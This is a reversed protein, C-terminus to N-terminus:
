RYIREWKTLKGNADFTLHLYESRNANPVGLGGPEEAAGTRVGTEGVNPPAATGLRTLWEATTGGDPLGSTHSPPGLDAQAQTYTYNGIRSNWDAASKDTECGTLVWGLMLSAVAAGLIGAIAKSKM